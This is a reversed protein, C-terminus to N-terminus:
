KFVVLGSQEDEEISTGWGHTPDVIDLDTIYVKKLTEVNWTKGGDVSHPFTGTINFQSPLDGGAAFWEGPSGPVSRM